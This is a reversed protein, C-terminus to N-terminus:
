TAAVGMRGYVDAASVTASSAVASHVDGRWVEEHLQDARSGGGRAPAETAIGGGLDRGVEADAAAGVHDTDREVRPGAASEGCPTRRQWGLDRGVEPDAAAGVHDTDREIAAHRADGSVKVLWGAKVLGDRRRKEGQCMERQPRRTQTLCLDELCASTTTGSPLSPSNAPRPDVRIPLSDDHVPSVDDLDLQILVLAENQAPPQDVPGPGARQV